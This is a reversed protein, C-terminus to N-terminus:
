AVEKQIEEIKILAEKIVNIDSKRKPANESLHSRWVKAGKIGHFLGLM